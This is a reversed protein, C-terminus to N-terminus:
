WAITTAIICGQGPMLRPVSSLTGVTGPNTLSITTGQFDALQLKGTRGKGVLADYAALFERFTFEGANKVNPVVLSRAGDRGAVDIALGLNIQNRVLRFAEGGNEAYANNLNPFAGLGKVIAWAILHTYSVKSQGLGARHQNIIRRNEDIVKVPISRQSTATPISLSLAM